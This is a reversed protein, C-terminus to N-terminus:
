PKAAPAPGQTQSSDAPASAPAEQSATVDAKPNPCVPIDPGTRGYCRWTAVYQVIEDAGVPNYYPYQLPDLSSDVLRFDHTKSNTIKLTFMRYEAFATSIMCSVLIFVGLFIRM